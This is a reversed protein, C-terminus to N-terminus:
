YHQQQEYAGLIFGSKSDRLVIKEISQFYNMRHGTADTKAPFPGLLLPQGKGKGVYWAWTSVSGPAIKV